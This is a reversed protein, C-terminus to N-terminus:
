KIKEIRQWQGVPVMVIIEDRLWLMLDSRENVSFSTAVIEKTEWITDQGSGKTQAVVVRYVKESPENSKLM